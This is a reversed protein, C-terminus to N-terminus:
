LIYPNTRDNRNKRKEAEDKGMMSEACGIRGKWEMCIQKKIYM